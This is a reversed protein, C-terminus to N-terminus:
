LVRALRAADFATTSLGLDIHWSKLIALNCKVLHYTKTASHHQGTWEILVVTSAPLPKPLHLTTSTFWAYDVCLTTSRSRTSTALGNWLLFAAHASLKVDTVFSTPPESIGRKGQLVAVIHLDIHHKLCLSFIEHFLDQTTPDQILGKLLGYQVNENDTHIVFRRPGLIELRTTDWVTKRRSLRFGLAAATLSLVKIPEAASATAESAGFFDDLYHSLESHHQFCEEFMRSLQATVTRIITEIDISPSLPTNTVEPDPNFREGLDSATDPDCSSRTFPPM